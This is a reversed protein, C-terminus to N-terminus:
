NMSQAIFISTMLNAKWKKLPSFEFEIIQAERYSGSYGFVLDGIQIIKPKDSIWQRSDNSGASDSAMVTKGDHTICLVTTM